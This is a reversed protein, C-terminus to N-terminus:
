QGTVAYPNGLRECAAASGSPSPGPEVVRGKRYGGADTPV